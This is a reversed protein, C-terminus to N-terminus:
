SNSWVPVKLRICVLLIEKVFSNSMHMYIFLNEKITKWTPKLIFYLNNNNNNDYM